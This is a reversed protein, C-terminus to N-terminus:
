TMWAKLQDLVFPRLRVAINAPAVEAGEESVPRIHVGLLHRHGTKKDLMWVPSGSQGGSTPALHRMLKDQDKIGLAPVQGQLRGRGIWLTMRPRKDEPYGAVNVIRGDVTSPPVLRVLTGFGRQPDGWFGLPGTKLRIASVDKRLRILGWDYNPSHSKLWDGSIKCSEAEFQGLRPPLPPGDRAPSVMVSDVRERGQRPSLVHAATLVFRTGILLGTGQALRSEYRVEPDRFNVEIHCIWRYPVDLTNRIRVRPKAGVPTEQELEKEFWEQRDITQAPNM